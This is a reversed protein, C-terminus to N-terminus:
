EGEEETEVLENSQQNIIEDVLQKRTKDSFSFISGSNDCLRLSDILIEFMILIQKNSVIM